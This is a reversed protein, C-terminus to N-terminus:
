LSRYDFHEEPPLSSMEINTSKRITDLNKNLVNIKRRELPHELMLYYIDKQGVSGTRFIRDSRQKLVATSWPLNMHVLVDAFQFNCGFALADTCCLVGAKSKEFEKIYEERKKSTVSGVITYVPLEPFDQALRAAARECARSSSYFLITHKDKWDKEFRREVFRLKAPIYDQLEKKNMRKMIEYVIRQEETFDGTIGEEKMRVFMESDYIIYPDDLASQIYGLVSVQWRPLRINEEGVRDWEIDKRMQKAVAKRIIEAIKIELLQEKDDSDIFYCNEEKTAYLLEESKEHRIFHPEIRQKFKEPCRYEPIIIERSVRKKPNWIRMKKEVRHAENFEQKPFIAPDLLRFISWGEYIEKSIPTGSLGIAFNSIMSAKFAAQFNITEPNSCKTVEDFVTVAGECINLLKQMIDRNRAAYEYNVVVMEAENLANNLVNEDKFMAKSLVSTTMAFAPGTATSPLKQWEKLWNDVNATNAFVVIKSAANADIAMKGAVLSTLTKGVGMDDAVLTGHWGERWQKFIFRISEEQAKKLMPFYDFMNDDNLVLPRVANNRASLIKLRMRCEVPDGYYEYMRIQTNWRFGLGNLMERSRIDEYANLAFIFRKKRQKPIQKEDEMSLIIKPLCSLGQTVCDKWENLITDDGTKEFQELVAATTARLWDKSPVHEFSARYEDGFEKWLWLGEDNTVQSLCSTLKKDAKVVIKSNGVRGQALSYSFYKGENPMNEVEGM